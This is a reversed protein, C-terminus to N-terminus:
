DQLCRVSYLHSKDNYYYYANEHSYSMRRYYADLSSDESSSWWYGYHGVNDFIGGSYGSGGPLASFGFKDEGNGSQKENKNWGEKSKLFKGAVKSEYPSNTDNAGDAFRYLKDWEENNPLHWGSPCAKMATEWDYFRGYKECNADKNGYCKSDKANYNLNEAIWTQEGIKATKYIKGDRADKFAGKQQACAAISLMTLLAVITKIITGMTKDGITQPHINDM